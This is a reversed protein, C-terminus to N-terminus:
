DKFINMRNPDGHEIYERNRQRAYEASTQEPQVITQTATQVAGRSKKKKFNKLLKLLLM